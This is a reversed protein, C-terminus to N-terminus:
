LRAGFTTLFYGLYFVAISALFLTISGREDHGLFGVWLSFPMLALGAVQLARGALYLAKKVAHRRIEPAAM